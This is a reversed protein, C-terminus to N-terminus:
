LRLSWHERLHYEAGLGEKFAVVGLNIRDHDASPGLDYWETGASVLQDIADAIAVLVGNDKVHADSTCTYLASTVRANLRLLCTGGIPIGDKETIHWTMADSFRQALLALEDYSHTPATGHRAYTDDMLPKFQELMVPGTGRRVKIGTRHAARVFRQARRRFYSAYGDPRKPQLRLAFCAHRNRLAFGARSLVFSSLSSLPGNYIPPPLTMDIGHWGQERGHQILAEVLALALDLRCDEGFVFGGVSAGLPSTFVQGDSTPVLGGPLLAALRGEQRFVLPRFDHRGPPHYALFRLDQFLTAAPSRDLFAAWDEEEEARLPAVAIAGASM